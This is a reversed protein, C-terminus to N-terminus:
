IRMWRLEIRLLLSSCVLESFLSSHFSSFKLLFELSFIILFKNETNSGEVLFRLKDSFQTLVKKPNINIGVLNHNIGDRYGIIHFRIEVFNCLSNLVRRPVLFILLPLVNKNTDKNESIRNLLKKPRNGYIKV